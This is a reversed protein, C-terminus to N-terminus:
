GDGVEDGEAPPPEDLALLIERAAEVCEDPVLIRREFASISGEAAAIFNDASFPHCGGDELLTMAYSLRVPDNTRLVEKM